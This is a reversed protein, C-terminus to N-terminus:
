VWVHRRIGGHFGAGCGRSSGDYGIGYTCSAGGDVAFIEGLTRVSCQGVVCHISIRDMPHNRPSNRNPSIRRYSVLKSSTMM